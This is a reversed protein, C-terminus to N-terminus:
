VRREKLRALAAKRELKAQNRQDGSMPAAALVVKGAPAASTCQQNEKGSQTGAQRARKLWSMHDGARKPGDSRTVQKAGENTLPAKANVDQGGFVSPPQKDVSARTEVERLAQRAELVHQKHTQLEQEIAMNSKMQERLQAEATEKMEITMKLKQELETEGKLHEQLQGLAAEKKELEQMADARAQAISKQLADQASKAMKSERLAASEEMHNVTSTLESIDRDFEAKAFAAQEKVQELEAVLEAKSALESELDGIRTSQESLTRMMSELDLRYKESAAQHGAADEEAREMEAGLTALKDGLEQELKQLLEDKEAVTKQLTEQAQIKTETLQAILNVRDEMLAANDEEAQAHERQLDRLERELKTRLDATVEQFEVQEQATIDLRQEM